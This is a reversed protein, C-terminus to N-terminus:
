HKYDQPDASDKPQSFLRKLADSMPLNLNHAHPPIPRQFWKQYVDNIRGSTMVEALVDDVLKKFEPDNRRLMLAWPELPLYDLRVIEYDKPSKTAAILGAVLMDGMQFAAARGSDMMMFASMHDPVEQVRMGLNFERNEEHIQKIDTSGSTSVITKGKMDQISSIGSSKKVVLSPQILLTTNSFAVQKQREVTNSAAGCSLDITGNLMLPIRTAPTVSVTKVELHELKLRSQIEKTIDKCLDISYGRHVNKDDLYSFPVSTDRVGLTITGSDAIKKLTGTLENAVAVPSLVTTLLAAMLIHRM